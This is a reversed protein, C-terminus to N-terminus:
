SPPPVSANTKRRKRVPAEPAAQSAPPSTVVPENQTTGPLASSAGSPMTATGDPAEDTDADDPDGGEDVEDHKRKRPKGKDSRTARSRPIISGDAVGADWKAQRDRREERSLKEWKCEGNQLANRLTTLAGLSSSLDSPNVFKDATWGVLKVGYRLVISEEHHVYEM